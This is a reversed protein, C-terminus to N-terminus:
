FWMDRQDLARNLERQLRHIEAQNCDRAIEYTIQNILQQINLPYSNFGYKRGSITLKCLLEALMSNAERKIRNEEQTAHLQERATRAQQEAARAAKEAAEAQRKQLEYLKKATLQDQYEKSGVIMSHLRELSDKLVCAEQYSQWSFNLNHAHLSQSLSQADAKIIEALALYLWDQAYSNKAVYRQAEQAFAYSFSNHSLMALFVYNKSILAEKQKYLILNATNCVFSRDLSYMYDIHMDIIALLQQGEKRKEAHKVDYGWAVVKEQLKAKAACLNKHTTKIQDAIEAITKPFYHALLLQNALAISNKEEGTIFTSSLEKRYKQSIDISEHTNFLIHSDNWETCINGIWGASFWGITGLTMAGLVKLVENEAKVQTVSSSLILSLLLFKKYCRVM